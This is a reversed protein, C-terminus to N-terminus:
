FLIAFQYVALGWDKISMTWRTSANKIALNMVKYISSGTMFKM